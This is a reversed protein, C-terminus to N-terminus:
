SLHEKVQKILTNFPVSCIEFISFLVGVVWSDYEIVAYSVNYKETEKSILKEIPHFYSTSIVIVTYLEIM